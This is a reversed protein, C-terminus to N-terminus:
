ESASILQMFVRQPSSEESLKIRHKRDLSRAQGLFRYSGTDLIRSDGEAIGIISGQIIGYITTEWFLPVGIENSGLVINYYLGQYSSGWFPVGLKPFDGYLGELVRFGLSRCLEM